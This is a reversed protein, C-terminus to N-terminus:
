SVTGLHELTHLDTLFRACLVFSYCLLISCGYPSTKDQSCRYFYLDLNTIAAKHVPIFDNQCRVHGSVTVFLANHVM